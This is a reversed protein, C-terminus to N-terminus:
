SCSSSDKQLKTAGKDPVAFACAGVRESTVSAFDSVSSRVGEQTLRMDHETDEKRAKKLEDDFDARSRLVIKM